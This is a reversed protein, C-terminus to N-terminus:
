SFVNLIKRFFSPTEAREKELIQLQELLIKEEKNSKKPITVKVKFLIDGRQHRNIYPVGKNSKKIVTEPQTGAPIDVILLENDKIGDIELKTGLVADLYSIELDAYLHVSDRQFHPHPEVQIYLNLDGSPGGNPSSEGANPVRLQNGNDVGAPITVTVESKEHTVGHGNCESCPHIIREGTGGCTQCPQNIVFFGTSQQVQGTGKCRPCREIDKQPNKVRKGQCSSCIVQKQVNLVREIGQIAEDFTLSLEMDINAGRRQRNGGRRSGGFIESFIDDFGFGNFMDSFGSFGGGRGGANNLGDHGYTDYVKRKEPNSLVEYAESAEKFIDESKPDSSRDPHHKFAIQRYAKKLQDGPTNQDVGLIEYYDRKAMAEERM